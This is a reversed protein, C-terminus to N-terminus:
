SATPLSTLHLSQFCNARSDWSDSGLQAVKLLNVSM